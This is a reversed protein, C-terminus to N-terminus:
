RREGRRRLTLGAVAIVVCVLVGAALIWWFTATAQTEVGAETVADVRRFEGEGATAQAQAQDVDVGDGVAFTLVRTVALTTADLLPVTVTLAVQHIGPETFVWNAHTHTNLEVWFPQTGDEGSNWLQQPPEFGGNQLFLSFRGLGRHGAFEYTVGRDAAETLAPSQAVSLLDLSATGDRFADAPLGTDAGFGLWVPDHGGFALDPAAYVTDGPDGLFSLAPHDPVTFQYQNQGRSGWGKGVWVM